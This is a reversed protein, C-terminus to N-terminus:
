GPQRLPRGDGCHLGAWLARLADHLEGKVVDDDTGLEAAIQATTRGLYYSRYIVARYRNSLGALAGEIQGMSGPAPVM